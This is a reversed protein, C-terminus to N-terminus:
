SLKAPNIDFTEKISIFPIKKVVQMTLTPITKFILSTLLQTASNLADIKFDLTFYSIGEKIEFPGSSFTGLITNGTYLKGDVGRMKLTTAIPNDLKMKIQIVGNSYNFGVPTYTIKEGLQYLQYLKYGGYGIALGLGIKLSKNV